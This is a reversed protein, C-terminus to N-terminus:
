GARAARQHHREDGADDPQADIRRRHQAAHLGGGLLEHRVTRARPRSWDPQRCDRLVRRHDRSEVEGDRRLEREREHGVEHQHAARHHQQEPGGPPRLAVLMLAADADRADHEAPM